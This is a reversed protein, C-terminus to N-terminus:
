GSGPRGAASPSAFLPFSERNKAGRDSSLSGPVGCVDELLMVVRRAEACVHGKDLVGWLRRTRTVSHWASAAGSDWSAPTLACSGRACACWVRRPRAGEARSPAQPSGDPRRRWSSRTPVTAQMVPGRAAERRARSIGANEPRLPAAPFAPPAPAPIDPRPRRLHSPAPPAPQTRPPLATPARSALSPALLQPAPSLLLARCLGSGWAQFPHAGLGPAPARAAEM